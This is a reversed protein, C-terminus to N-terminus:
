PVLYEHVRRDSSEPGGKYPILMDSREMIKVPVDPRDKTETRCLKTVTNRQLRGEALSGEESKM